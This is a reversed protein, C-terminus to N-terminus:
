YRRPTELALFELIEPTTMGDIRRILEEIRSHLQDFEGAPSLRALEGSVELVERATEDDLKFIGTIVGHERLSYVRLIDQALRIGKTVLRLAKWLLEPHRRMAEVAANAHTTYLEAVERGLASQRLIVDRFDRAIMVGPHASVAVIQDGDSKEALYSTLETVFFCLSPCEGDTWEGGLGCACPPPCPECMQNGAPDTYWCVGNAM